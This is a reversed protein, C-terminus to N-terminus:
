LKVKSTITYPNPAAIVMNGKEAAKIYVDPLSQYLMYNTYEPHRSLAAGVADIEAAIAEGKSASLKKRMVTTEIEAEVRAREAVAKDKLVDQVARDTNATDMADPFDLNSMSIQHVTVFEDGRTKLSLTFQDRISKFIEERSANIANAIYPSVASRVAESLSPKLFIDYMQSGMIYKSPNGAQTPAPGVTSFLKAVTKPDDCKIGYSIYLDINFQVGDKTLAQMTEKKTQQGCEVLRIEDYLGTYYTGPELIKGVFGTDGLYLAAAGTRAFKRGVHSAPVDDTDCGATMLSSLALITAILKSQINM